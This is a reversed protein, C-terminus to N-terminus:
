APKIRGIIEFATDFGRKILMADQIGDYYGDLHLIHYVVDLEKLLKKDLQGINSEYYEISLRKRKHPRPIGKLMLYIDLALLVGSYATGCATKIYKRDQYYGDEKGAKELSDKANDMYRLAEKYGNERLKKQKEILEM